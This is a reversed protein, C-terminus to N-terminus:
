RHSRAQFEGDNKGGNDATYFLHGVFVPEGDHDALGVLLHFALDDVGLGQDGIPNGTQQDRDRGLGSVVFM